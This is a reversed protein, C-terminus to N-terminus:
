DSFPFPVVTATFHSQRQRKQLLVSRRREPRIIKQAQLNKKLIFYNFNCTLLPMLSYIACIEIM